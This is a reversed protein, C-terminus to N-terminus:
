RIQEEICLRIGHEETFLIPVGMFTHMGRDNAILSREATSDMYLLGMFDYADEKSMKIVMPFVEDIGTARARDIAHKLRAVQGITVPERYPDVLEKVWVAGQLFDSTPLGQNLLEDITLQNDDCYKNVAEHTNSITAGDYLFIGYVNALAQARFYELNNTDPQSFAERCIREIAELKEHDTM